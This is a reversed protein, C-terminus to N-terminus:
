SDLYKLAEDKSISIYQTNKAKPEFVSMRKDRQRRMSRFGTDICDYYFLDKEVGWDDKIIRLRGIMQSATINSSYPVLSIVCQLDDIDLGVGGSGITTFIINKRIEYRKKKKEIMTTYNGFDMQKNYLKDMIHIFRDIHELKALYVLIKADPYKDLIPDIIMKIMGCMYMINEYKEFIYNWYMIGSLGEKTHCKQVNYETPFTNYDILTLNIDKRAFLTKSGYSPIKRMCRMFVSREADNTRSPTATLYWTQETQITTDISVNQGWHMHFEDFCKIGIGCWDFISNVFERGREEIVRSISSSTTIYFITKLAKNNKLMNCLKDSGKVIKIAKNELTCQGGTYEIIKNCWQEPLTESIILIPTRLKWAAMVACYTKGTGTGLCLMKSHFLSKSTLFAISEAQIQDRMQYKEDINFSSDRPKIFEDSKDIIEYRVQDKDLKSKIFELDAGIPIYLVKNKKDMVGLVDKYSIHGMFNNFVKFSKELSPSTGFVKRAYKDWKYPEFPSVKYYNHFIEIKITEM